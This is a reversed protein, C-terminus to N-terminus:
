RSSAYGSEADERVWYEMDRETALFGREDPPLARIQVEHDRVALCVRYNKVCDPCAYGGDEMKGGMHYAFQHACKAHGRRAGADWDPRITDWQRIQRRIQDFLTIPLPGYTFSRSKIDNIAIYDSNEHNNSNQPAQKHSSSPAPPRRAYRTAPQNATTRTRKSIPKETTDLAAGRNTKKRQRHAVTIGRNQSSADDETSQRDLPKRKRPALSNSLGRIQRTKEHAEGVSGDDIETNWFQPDILQRRANSSEDHTSTLDPQLQGKEASVAPLQRKLDAIENYKQTLENQIRQNSKKRDNRGQTVANLKVQTSDQASRTQTGMNVAGQRYKSSHNNTSSQTAGLSIALQASSVPLADNKPQLDRITQLHQQIELDKLSVEEELTEIQSTQQSNTNRLGDITQSHTFAKAQELKIRGNLSVLKSSLREELETLKDARQNRESEELDTLVKNCKQVFDGFAGVSTRGSKVIGDIKDRSDNDGVARCSEAAKSLHSLTLGAARTLVERSVILQERLATVPLPSQHERGTSTM